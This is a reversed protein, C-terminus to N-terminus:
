LTTGDQRMDPMEIDTLVVSQFNMRVRLPATLGEQRQRSRYRVFSAAEATRRHFFASDDVSLLGSQSSMSTACRRARSIWDAFAM